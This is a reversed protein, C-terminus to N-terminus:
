NIQLALAVKGIEAQTQKFLLLFVILVIIHLCIRVEQEQGFDQLSGPGTCSPGSPRTGISATSSFFSFM